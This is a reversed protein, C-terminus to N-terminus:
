LRVRDQSIPGPNTTSGKRTAMSVRPRRAGNWEPPQTSVKRVHAVAQHIELWPSALTAQEDDTDVEIRALFLAPSCDACTRDASDTHRPEGNCGPNRKTTPTCSRKAPTMAEAAEREAEGRERTIRAQEATLLDLPIADAYAM